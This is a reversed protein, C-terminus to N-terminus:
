STMRTPDRQFNRCSHYLFEISRGTFTGDREYGFLGEFQQNILLMQGAQNVIVVTFCKAGM